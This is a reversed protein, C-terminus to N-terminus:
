NLFSIGEPHKALIFRAIFITCLWGLVLKFIIDAVDTVKSFTENRMFLYTSIQIAWALTFFVCDNRKQM